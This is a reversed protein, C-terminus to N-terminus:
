RPLVIQFAAGHPYNPSASLRGGHSEVISRCIALGLGMGHSKTTFFASFIRNINEPVIGIGSDEVTILVGASGNPNSKVRLIRNRDTVSEMADIANTMLNFLVHQLQVRDGTVSPLNEDLETHVEIQWNRREDQTLVLVERLLENLDVSVRSKEDARFMARIGKIIEGARHGEDVIEQLITRTEDVDPTTRELWRLGASANAVIASLPQNIEHAISGTMAVMQNVRANRTLEARMEQLADQAQKKETIDFAIGFTLNAGSKWDTIAFVYLSIWILKGDKRRLRKIMEFHQRKGEQMEKILAENIEREGPVSLDLPTLQRLEDISYGVMTQYTQNATIFRQHEDLLNVGFIPNELLSQWRDESTRLDMQIHKRIKRERILRAVKAKQGSVSSNRRRAAKSANRRTLRRRRQAKVAKGGAKNPRRM